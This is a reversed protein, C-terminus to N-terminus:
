SQAVNGPIAREFTIADIHPGRYGLLGLLLRDLVSQVRQFENMPKDTVFGARHVLENRTATIAEVDAQDLEVRFENAAERLRRKFTTFNLGRLHETMRTAAQKALSPFALCLVDSIARRLPGLKAQFTDDDMIFERGNLVAVRGIVFEMVSLLQLCRTELFGTTRVDVWARTTAGLRYSEKLDRYRGFVGEVFTPMEHPPRPDILPLAGNYPRTVAPHHVAFLPNGDADRQECFIWNVLTGEALSLVSCLDSVLERAMDFTVSRPVCVEGTVRVAHRGRLETRVHDYDPVQEITVTGDPLALPLMEPGAGSAERQRAAPVSFLLNTIAFRWAATDDPRGVTLLSNGTLGFTAATGRDRSWGNPRGLLTGKAEIPLGKNLHGKFVTADLPEGFIAKMWHSPVPSEPPSVCELTVTGDHEQTAVCECAVPPDGDGHDLTGTCEYRRVFENV